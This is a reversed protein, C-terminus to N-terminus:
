RSTGSMTTEIGALNWLMMLVILPEGVEKDQTKYIISNVHQNTHLVTDCDVMNEFALVKQLFDM